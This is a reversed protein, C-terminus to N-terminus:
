VHSVRSVPGRLAVSVNVYCCNSAETGSVRRFEALMLLTIVLHRTSLDHLPEAYAISMFALTIQRQM